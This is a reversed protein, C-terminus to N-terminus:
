SRELAEVEVPVGNLVANGVLGEIRQQMGVTPPPAAQFLLAVIEVIGVIAVIM